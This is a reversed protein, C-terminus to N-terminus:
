NLTIYKLKNSFNLSDTGYVITVWGHGEWLFGNCLSLQINLQVIKM